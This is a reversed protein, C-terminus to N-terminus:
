LEFEEFRTALGAMAQDVASRNADMVRRRIVLKVARIDLQSMPQHIDWFLFKTGLVLKIFRVNGLVVALEGSATYSIPLINSQYVKGGLKTFQELLTVDKEIAALAADVQALQARSLIRATAQRWVQQVSGSFDEKIVTVPQEDVEWGFSWFTGYLLEFWAQPHTFSNYTTDARQLALYTCNKVFESDAQRKDEIGTFLVNSAVIAASNVASLNSTGNM